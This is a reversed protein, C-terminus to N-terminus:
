QIRCRPTFRPVDDFPSFPSQYFKEQWALVTFIQHIHQTLIGSKLFQHTPLYELIHLEVEGLVEICLCFNTPKQKILLSGEADLYATLTTDKEEVVACLLKWRLWSVRFHTMLAHRPGAAHFSEGPLGFLLQYPDFLILESALM